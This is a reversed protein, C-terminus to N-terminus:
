KRGLLRVHVQKTAGVVTNRVTTGPSVEPTNTQATWRVLIQVTHFTTSVLTRM